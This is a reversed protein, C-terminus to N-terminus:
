VQWASVNSIEESMSSLNVSRQFFFSRWGDTGSSAIGGARLSLNSSALASLCRNLRADEESPDILEIDVASHSSSRFVILALTAGAYLWPM